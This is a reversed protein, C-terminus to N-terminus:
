DTPAASVAIKRKENKMEEPSGLADAGVSESKV